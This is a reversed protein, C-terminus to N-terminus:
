WRLNKEYEVLREEIIKEHWDQVQYGHKDAIVMGYILNLLREDADEIYEHLEKKIAATEM